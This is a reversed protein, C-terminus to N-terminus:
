EETIFDVVRKMQKKANKNNLVFGRGAVGKDMAEEYGDGMLEELTTAWQSISEDKPTIVYNFYEEPVGSLRNMVVPNGTMMYELTKSPFSYKTYDHESTRPNVLVAAKRQMERAKRSDVLGLFKISNNNDTRRKLEDSADGSGCIWLEVDQPLTAKEFAEVLNMIGFQRHVSGTYLIIRKNSYEQSIKPYNREDILGEMVIHSIPKDFFDTMAETLLVHRECQGLLQISHKDLWAVAKGKISNHDHMQTVMSPIDPIIATIDLKKRTFWRSFKFARLMFMGPTNAIVHIHRGEFYRYQKLLNFFTTIFVSIRNIILVNCFGASKIPVGNTTYCESHTYLRRNNHPWSYVAPITLVRLNVAQQELGYIISLEFNHNSFGVKGKSDESITEILKEPYFKGLFLINHKYPTAM